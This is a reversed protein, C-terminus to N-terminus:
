RTPDDTTVLPIDRDTHPAISFERGGSCSGAASACLGCLLCLSWLARRSRQATSKTTKADLGGARKVKATVHIDHRGEEPVQQPVGGDAGLDAGLAQLA